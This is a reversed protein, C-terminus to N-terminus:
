LSLDVWCSKTLLWERHHCTSLSAANLRVGCRLAMPMARLGTVVQHGKVETRMGTVGDTWGPHAITHSLGGNRNVEVPRSYSRTSQDSRVHGCSSFCDM